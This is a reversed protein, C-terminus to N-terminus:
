WKGEHIRQVDGIVSDRQPPSLGVSPDWFCTSVRASVSLTERMEGAARWVQKCHRTTSTIAMVVTTSAMAQSPFSPRSLMKMILKMEASRDCRSRSSRSDNALKRQQPRRAAKGGAETTMVKDRLKFPHPSCVGAPGADVPFM